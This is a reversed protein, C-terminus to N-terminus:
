RNTSFTFMEGFSNRVQPSARNQFDRRPDCGLRETPMGYPLMVYDRIDLEKKNRLDCRSQTQVLMFPLQSPNFSPLSQNESFM